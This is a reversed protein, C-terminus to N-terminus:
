YTTFSEHLFSMFESDTRTSPEVESETNVINETGELTSTEITSSIENVVPLSSQTVESDLTPNLEETNKLISSNSLMKISTYYATLITLLPITTNNPDLTTQVLIDSLTNDSSLQGTLFFPDLDKASGVLESTGQNLYRHLGNIVPISLFYKSKVGKFFYLSNIKLSTIINKGLVSLFSSTAKSLGYVGLVVLTVQIGSIFLPSNALELFFSSSSLDSHPNTTVSELGTNKVGLSNSNNLKVLESTITKLENIQTNISNFNESNKLSLLKNERYLEQLSMFSYVQGALLSIFFFSSSNLPIKIYKKYSISSNNNILSKLKTRM